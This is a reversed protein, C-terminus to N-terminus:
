AQAQIIIHSASTWYLAEGDLENFKINEVSCLQFSDGNCHEYQEHSYHWIYHEMFAMCLQM